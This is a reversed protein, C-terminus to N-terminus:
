RHANDSQGPQSVSIEVQGGTGGINDTVTLRVTFTGVWPYTHSATVGSASTGDGFNWAYNVIVGDADSSGSGDFACTLGTCVVTFSAVPRSNAVLNVVQQEIDIRGRNDTVYLTVTFPGAANYSHTATQGYTVMEATASFGPIGRSRGMPTQLDPRM